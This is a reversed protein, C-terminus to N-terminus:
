YQYFNEAQLRSSILRHKQESCAANFILLLADQKATTSLNTVSDLATSQM